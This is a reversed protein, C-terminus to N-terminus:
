LNCTHTHTHTCMVLFLRYRDTPHQGLYHVKFLGLHDRPRSLSAKASQRKPILPPSQHLSRRNVVQERANSTPPTSRPRQLPDTPESYGTGFSSLSSVDAQESDSSHKWESRHPSHYTSCHEVPRLHDYSYDGSMLSALSTVSRRSVSTRASPDCHESSEDTSVYGDWSELLSYSDPELYWLNQYDAALSQRNDILSGLVHTKRHMRHIQSRTRVESQSRWHTRGGSRLVPSSEVTSDSQSSDSDYHYQTKQYEGTNPNRRLPVTGKSRLPSQFSQARMV